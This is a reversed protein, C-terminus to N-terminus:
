GVPVRIRQGATLAPSDLANLREIREMMARVDGDSGQQAAADSAIDWLTDGTHVTVTHTPEPAGPRQTATSSAAVQLGVALVVLLALALVVLRGRRTLRVSGHPAATRPAAPRAAARPPLATTTSM